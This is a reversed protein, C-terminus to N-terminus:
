TLRRIRPIDKVHLLHVGTRRSLARASPTYHGTTIVVALDVRHFARGSFAEQVARNGVAGAYRKCQIGIKRGDRRAIIDIGQDGSGATIDARFGYGELKAAVLREFAHGDGRDQRPGHGLSFASTRAAAKGARGRRRRRVAGRRLCLAPLLLATMLVALFAVDHGTGADMRDGALSAVLFGGIVIVTVSLLAYRFLYFATSILRRM